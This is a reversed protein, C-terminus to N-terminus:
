KAIIIKQQSIIGLNDASIVLFYCGAELGTHIQQIATNGLTQASVVRGAVDFMQFNLISNQYNQPITVTFDGSNPNPYIGIKGTTTNVAQIGTKTGSTTDINIGYFDANNRPLLTMDSYSEWMIGTLSDMKTYLKVPYAKVNMQTAWEINNVFSVNLSSFDPNTATTAVRGAFVRCGWNYHLSDNGDSVRYEAYNTPNAGSTSTSDANLAVVELKGSDKDPVLTTLMNIYKRDGTFSYSTLANPSLRVPKINTNGKSNVTINSINELFPVTAYDGVAGTVTVNDGIKLNQLGLNDKIYGVRIGAYTAEGPQQIFVYGLNNTQMSATVVGTLTVTDKYYGSLPDIGPAKYPTYVVDHITLGSDNVIYFYPATTYTAPSYAVLAAPSGDTAKIYYSVFSLNPEAPISVTYTSGAVNTMAISDWTSSGIGVSYFLYASKILAASYIDATVTPSQTHKPVLLNRTVDSIQPPSVGIVYDNSDFPYLQYGYGTEGFCKNKSHAVVGRLTKYVTGIGPASSFVGGNARLYQVQCRGYAEIENGVSDVVTFTIQGPYSSTNTSSSIVRVNHLEIYNGEYQEGTTLINNEATDNLNGVKVNPIYHPTSSGVVSIPSTPELETEGKYEDIFGTVVVSDGPLLSEMSTYITSNESFIDIGQFSDLGTQIWVQHYTSVIADAGSMIVIGSVTVTDGAYLSSDLCNALDTQSRWQVAHVTTKTTQAFMATSVAIAFILLLTRKM